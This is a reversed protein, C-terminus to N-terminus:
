AKKQKRGRKEVINTAVSNPMDPSEVPPNDRLAEVRALEEETHVVGGRNIDLYFNLLDKRSKIDFIEMTWNAQMRKFSFPTNELDKITYRDFVKFKGAVFDRLATLRQLGDVCVIDDPNMDCDKDVMKMDWNACNFRINMPAVGRIVSELFAIQRPQDWVHGRQFDPNLQLSGGQGRADEDLQRLTREIMLIPQQVAYVSKRLPRVIDYMARGEETLGNWYEDSLGHRAADPNQEYKKNM